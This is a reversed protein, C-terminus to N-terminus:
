GRERECAYLHSHTESHGLARGVLILATRDIGSQGWQEKVERLTGRIVKQDPWTARYVVAAPCGQGYHKALADFVEAAEGASLFVCLTAGTRALADLSEKEPVPTRGAARTLIVTQSVEPMTLEVKLVSAAAVFSSVGPVVEYDIGLLDLRRMQEGIAGYVSPDGSHLRVVDVGRDRARCIISIIADLDLKSSDHREADPPLMAVVKPSVLSGAYICCRCNRLLNAAKVTLLEPDGPGAGVFFVKM